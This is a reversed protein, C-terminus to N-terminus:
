PGCYENVLSPDFRPARLVAQIFYLLKARVGPALDPYWVPSAMVLGRFACYPAAVELIERDGTQDLYRHWFREFLYEFWGALKGTHQLSFFLYNLTLCVVDDAPDGFEGRSRDLLSFHTGEQFLVNWPHFDGHIKRLRHAYRKLRWRWAICQHEIDELAQASILPDPPYSDALGMICEGHGVLERIRRIYLGPHHVPTKHIGALYDCLADSRAVDLGALADRDRLRELDAAYPSGDAYETLLCFEEVGGLPILRGDKEFGGVDFSHIHRPLRNFARHQWLLVQARDAMNEHGFPGPHMTHLVASQSRGSIEFDIRLPVGYGYTKEAASDPSSGLPRVATVVVDQKLVSELYQAIQETKPEPM